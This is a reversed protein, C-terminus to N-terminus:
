ADRIFEDFAGRTIMFLFMFQLLQKTDDTSFTGSHTKFWNREQKSQKM